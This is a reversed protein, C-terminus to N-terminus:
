LTSLKCKLTQGKKSGKKLFIIWNWARFITSVVIHQMSFVAAQVPFQEVHAHQSVCASPLNLASSAVEMSTKTKPPLEHPM